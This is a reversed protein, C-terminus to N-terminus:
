DALFERLILTVTEAAEQQVWHGSNPIRFQEFPADFMEGIGEITEPLIAPDQEAFIFLSPVTIKADLASESDTSFLSFLNARYYNIMATLASPERWGKKYEAIDAEAFTQPVVSLKRLSDALLAFDNRSLLWEPLVPIQLFLMYWSAFFQRLSFNKRWIAKPPVQLAGVKWFSEPYKRAAEWAVIAGWDHGILAAEERGFYNVLNVADDVLNEIKYDAIAGTKTSLGYGRLDPAVVTYEDSLAAIQHRWSYWSEPFGHLLLVLKEGTGATAYHLNVAGIQAYDFKIKNDANM